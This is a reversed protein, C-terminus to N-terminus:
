SSHACRIDTEHSRAARGSFFNNKEILRAILGLQSLVLEILDSNALTTEPGYQPFILMVYGCNTRDTALQAAVLGYGDGQSVVPEDGDDIKAGLERLFVESINLKAFRESDSPWCNGKRDMIVMIPGQEPLVQYVQRAIQENLVCGPTSQSGFIDM